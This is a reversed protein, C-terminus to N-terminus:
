LYKMEPMVDGEPATELIGQGGRAGPVNARKNIIGYVKHPQREGRGYTRNTIRARRGCHIVCLAATRYLLIFVIVTMVDAIIYRSSSDTSFM